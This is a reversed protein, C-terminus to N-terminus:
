ECVIGDHDRDEYWSYEPDRGQYYPGYGHSKAETCTSFRPDTGGSGGGTGGGGSGGSSSGGYVVYTVEAKHTVITTPACKNHAWDYLVAKEGPNVSLSWRMKVAVWNKIYTCKNQDPIWDKPDQDGKSRNSSASVALLSRSDTLDNAFAERRGAGWSRAGSDWAEALPVLHDIDVYSASHYLKGDYPSLWSGSTISCGSNTRIRSEVKLVEARTNQCDRDVDDWLKFKTRVYGARNETAVKLRNVMMTLSLEVRKGNVAKPISTEASAHQAPVVSLATFVLAGLAARTLLHKM